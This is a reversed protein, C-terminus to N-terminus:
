DTLNEKIIQSKIFDYIVDFDNYPIKEGKIEQYKEAGKGAIIITEGNKYKSLAYEIAEKRNEIIIAKSSMGKKIDGIISMPEEYRPNDSTLIVDDAYAEAIRGMIPRKLKDRNGGCGFIAVVKNDTLDRATSLVKELGDPTHAYDIVLNLNKYKVINFRGETQNLSNVGQMIIEKSLGLKLCVGICALANQINYEGVLSSDINILEGAYDCIFSSGEFSKKIDKANIDCFPNLGYTLVPCNCLSAFSLCLKDDGCFLASKVKYDEFLKLKTFAYDEMNKFYDLHDETINTLVGVEFDIGDLKKLAIAHASAEMVVYECGNNKMQLFLNHLIYPDPTTFGTDINGNHGSFNAGLTGIVGAKKGSFRM